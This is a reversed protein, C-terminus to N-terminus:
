IKGKHRKTVYKAQPDDDEWNWEKEDFKNKINRLNALDEEELHSDLAIKFDKELEELTAGEYSVLAKDLNLVQGFYCSDAKSFEVTGKYGRYELIVKENM